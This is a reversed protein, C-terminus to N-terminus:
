IPNVVTNPYSLTPRQIARGGSRPLFFLASSVVRKTCVRVYGLRSSFGFFSWSAFVFIVLRSFYGNKFVKVVVTIFICRALRVTPWATKYIYTHHQFMYSVAINWIEPLKQLPPPLSANGIDYLNTTEASSSTVKPTRSNQPAPRWSENTPASQM